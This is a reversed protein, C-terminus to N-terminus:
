KKKIKELLINKIYIPPLALIIADGYIKQGNNTIVSNVIGSTETVTIVSTNLLFNVNNSELFQKWQLFLGKDNPIKPQYSSYFFNQNLLQLMENLTFKELTAGDSIICFRDIIDITEISFDNDNVFNKM